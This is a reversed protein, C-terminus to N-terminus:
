QTYVYMCVYVVSCSSLSFSCRSVSPILEFFRKWWAVVM